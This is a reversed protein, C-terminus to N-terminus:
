SKVATASTGPSGRSMWALSYSCVVPGELDLGDSHSGRLLLFKLFPASFGSLCFEAVHRRQTVKTEACAVIDFQSLLLLRLECLNGHLM